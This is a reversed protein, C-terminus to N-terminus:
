KQDRLSYYNIILNQLSVWAKYLKEEYFNDVVIKGKCLTLAEKDGYNYDKIIDDKSLRSYLMLLSIKDIIKTRLNDDIDKTTVLTYVLEVYASYDENNITFEIDDLLNNINLSEM